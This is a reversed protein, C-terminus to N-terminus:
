AFHEMHPCSGSTFSVLEYIHETGEGPISVDIQLTFGFSKSIYYDASEGYQSITYKDCAHGAITADVKASSTTLAEQGMYAFLKILPMAVQNSVSQWPDSSSGLHSEAYAGAEYADEYLYYSDNFWTASNSSHDIYFMSYNGENFKWFGISIYSPTETENDLVTFEFSQNYSICASLVGAEVDSPKLPEGGGSPISNGGGGNGNGGSNNAKCGVLLLPIGLVFLLSKKM